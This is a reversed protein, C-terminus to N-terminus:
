IVKSIYLEYNEEGETDVRFILDKGKKYNQKNIEVEFHKFKNAKIIGLSQIEGIPLPDGAMSLGLCSAIFVTCIVKSRLSYVKRM